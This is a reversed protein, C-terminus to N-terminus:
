PPFRIPYLGDESPGQLLTRGMQTDKVFFDSSTLLFYYDNDQCFKQISLLNATANPCYLVRQLTLYHPLSISGTGSIQLSTGNGM